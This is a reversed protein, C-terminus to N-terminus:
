GASFSLGGWFGKKPDQRRDTLCRMAPEDPSLSSFVRCILSLKGYKRPQLLMKKFSQIAASKRHPTM